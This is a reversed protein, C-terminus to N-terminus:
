PMNAVNTCEEYEITLIAVANKAEAERNILTLGLSTCVFDLNIQEQKPGDLYYMTNSTYQAIGAFLYFDVNNISALTGTLRVHYTKGEEFELIDYELRDGTTGSPQLVVGNEYFLISNRTAPQINDIKADIGILLGIIQTFPDPRDGAAIAFGAFASSGIVALLILAIFKMGFKM